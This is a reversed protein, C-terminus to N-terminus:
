LLVALAIIRLQRDDDDDSPCTGRRWTLMVLPGAAAGGEEGVQLPYGTLAVRRKTTVRGMAICLRSSPNKLEHGEDVVVVSPGHLLMDRIQACPLVYAACLLM